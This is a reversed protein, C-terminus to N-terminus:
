KGFNEVISNYDFITYPNGFNAKIAVFDDNNVHNDGTIDGAISQNPVNAFAVYIDHEAILQPLRPGALFYFINEKGSAETVYINGASCDLKTQPSRPPSQHLDAIQIKGAFNNTVFKSNSGYIYNIAQMSDLMGAQVDLQWGITNNAYRYIYNGQKLLTGNPLQCWTSTDDPNSASQTFMFATFAHPVKQADYDFLTANMHLCSRANPDSYQPNRVTEKITTLGLPGSGWLPYGFSPINTYSVDHTESVGPIKSQSGPKNATPGWGAIQYEGMVYDSDTGDFNSVGYSLPNPNKAEESIDWINTTTNYTAKNMYWGHVHDDISYHLTPNGGVMHNFDAYLSDKHLTPNQSKPQIDLKAIHNLGITSTCQWENFYNKTDVSWAAFVSQPILYLYSLSICLLGIKTKTM